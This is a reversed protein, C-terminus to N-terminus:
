MKIVTMKAMKGMVKSLLDLLSRRFEHISSLLDLGPPKNQRHPAQTITIVITIVITIAITNASIFNKIIVILLVIIIIIIMVIINSAGGSSRSLNGLPWPAPERREDERLIDSFISKNTVKIIIKAMAKTM